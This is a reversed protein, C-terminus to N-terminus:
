QNTVSVVFKAWYDTRSKELFSSNFGPLQFLSSSNERTSVMSTFATSKIKIKVHEPSLINPRKGTAFIFAAGGHPLVSRAVPNFGGGIGFVAVNLGESLSTELIQIETSAYNLVLCGCCRSANLLNDHNKAWNAVVRWSLEDLMKHYSNKEVPPIPLHIPIQKLMYNYRSNFESDAVNDMKELRIGAKNATGFHYSPEELGRQHSTMM